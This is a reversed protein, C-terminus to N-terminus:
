QPGNEGYLVQDHDRGSFARDDTEIPMQAIAALVGALTTPEDVTPPPIVSLQVETGEPLALPESPRLLGNKYVATCHITM